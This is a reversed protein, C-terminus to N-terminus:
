IQWDLTAVNHQELERPEEDSAILELIDPPLLQLLLYIEEQRIPRPNPAVFTFNWKIPNKKPM